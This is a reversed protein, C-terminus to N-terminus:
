EEERVIFDFNYLTGELHFPLRFVCNGNPPFNLYDKQDNFGVHKYLNENLYKNDFKICSSGSLAYCSDFESADILFRILTTLGTGGNDRVINNRGSFRWQFASVTFFEDETYISNFYKCHNNYANELDKFFVLDKINEKYHKKLGSGLLVSSFDIISVFIKYYKDNNGKKIISDVKTIILCDTMAHENANSVLEVITEIFSEKFDDKINFTKFFYNLESYLISLSEKNNKDYKIIKRFLNRNIELKEFLSIYTERNMSINSNKFIISNKLDGSLFARIEKNRNKIKIKKFNTNKCLYYLCSELLMYISLDNFELSNIIITISINDDLSYLEIFKKIKILLKILASYNFISDNININLKNNKVKLKNFKPNNELTSSLFNQSELM